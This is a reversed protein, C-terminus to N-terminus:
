GTSSLTDTAELWYFCTRPVLKEVLLCHEKLYPQAYAFTEPLMKPHAARQKKTAVALETGKGNYTTHQSYTNYAVKNARSYNYAPLHLRRTINKLVETTKQYLEESHIVMVNQKGFVDLSEKVQTYLEFEKISMPQSFISMNKFPPPQTVRQHFDEPSRPFTYNNKNEWLNEGLLKDPRLYERCYTGVDEGRLGALEEPLCFYWYSSYLTELPSRILLLKLSTHPLYKEYARKALAQVSAVGVCSEGFISNNVALHPYISRIKSVYEDNDIVKVTVSKDVFLPEMQVSCTEKPLVNKILPHLQLYMHLSSTGSKMMGIISYSPYCIISEPSSGTSDRFCPSRGPLRKAHKYIYESYSKDPRMTPRPVSHSKHPQNGNGSFDITADGYNIFISLVFLYRIGWHIM